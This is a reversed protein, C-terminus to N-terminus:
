FIINQKKLGLYEIVHSFKIYPKEPSPGCYFYKNDSFYVVDDYENEDLEDIYRTGLNERSIYHYVEDNDEIHSGCFVFKKHYEIAEKYNAMDEMDKIYVLHQECYQNPSLPSSRQSCTLDHSNIFACLSHCSFCRIPESGIKIAASMCVINDCMKNDIIRSCKISLITIKGSSVDSSSM